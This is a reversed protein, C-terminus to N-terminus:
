PAYSRAVIPAELDARHDRPGVPVRGAGHVHRRHARGVQVHLQRALAEDGQRRLEEEGLVGVQPGVRGHGHPWPEHHGELPPCVRRVQGGSAGQPGVEGAPESEHEGRRGRPGCGVLDRLPGPLRRAGGRRQRSGDGHAGRRRHPDPPPREPTLRGGAVPLTCVLGRRFHSAPWTQQWWCMPVFDELRRPMTEVRYNAKGDRLVDLAAPDGGGAVDAVDAPVIQFTGAPDDQPGAVDMRLPHLTHDGFGVDALWPGDAEVKLAMHAFPPSLGDEGYVGGALLTVPFGLAGLLAAFAGNLEYCFGGRRDAVLKRVLADEELVIPQGLHISLNEFPIAILHRRHLDRLAEATPTRPRPAGIRALYRTVSRADM